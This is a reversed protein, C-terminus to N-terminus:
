STSDFGVRASMRATRAAEVGNAAFRAERLTTGRSSANRSARREGAAAPYKANPSRITPGASMTGTRALPASKGKRALSAFSEFAPHRTTIRKVRAPV